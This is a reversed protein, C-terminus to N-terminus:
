QTIRGRFFSVAAGVENRTGGSETEWSEIPGGTELNELNRKMQKGVNSLVTQRSRRERRAGNGVKRGSEERSRRAQMTKSRHSTAIHV